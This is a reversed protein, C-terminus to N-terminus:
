ESAKPVGEGAPVDQHGGPANWICANSEEYITKKKKILEEAQAYFRHDNNEM